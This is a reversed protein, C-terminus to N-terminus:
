CELIRALYWVGLLSRDAGEYEPNEPKSFPSQAQPTPEPTPVSLAPQTPVDRFAILRQCQIGEPFFLIWVM